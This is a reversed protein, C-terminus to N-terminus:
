RPQRIACTLRSTAVLRDQDDRVEIAYSAISRGETLPTATATVYGETVSRHHTINLEIGVAQAPSAYLTAAVSGVTEALAASAGGHLIGAPQTNHAMPMRAVVRGPAAELFEMEMREALTGPSLANVERTHTMGELTDPTLVVGRSM